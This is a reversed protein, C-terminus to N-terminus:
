NTGLMGAKLGEDVPDKGLWMGFLATKFDLGSITELVKGNKSVTVGVNPTYVLDFYDGKSIAEKKFLGVFKDISSQIPAMNGGTSKKFGELTAEYMKDSTVLGSTVTLRAVMPDNAKSLAVGDKSKTTVYLANVYVEIFAKKRIGAGNLELTKDGAKLSNLVKVGGVTIQSFATQAMVALVAFLVISKKM